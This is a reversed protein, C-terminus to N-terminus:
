IRMNNLELITKAVNRKSLHNELYKMGAKSKNTRSENTSYIVKKITAALTEITNDPVFYIFNKYEEPMGDLKYAVVSNGTSLYDIIKSPFSYKTYDSNNQRPNVLIDGELIHRRAIDSSVQGKYEIRRDKVSAAEVENKAEGGGCIVLRLNEDELLSFAKILNLIGFNRELRGTYVIRVIGDNNKTLSYDLKEYIGEIVAYPRKGIALPIAMQKTLIIYSDVTRSEKMFTWIDYKKLISYLRPVHSSLNMYQPLDPIVLCIKIKADKKKAYNAAQILPTHPTYVIILKEEDNDNIFDKLLKQVGRRRSPNQIGWINNFHAYKYGSEDKIKHNFGRFFIDKYAQPYAGIFPASIVQVSVGCLRLGEIIKRQFNNAAYEVYTKTKSIIEVNHSDDFVGGLFLVKM